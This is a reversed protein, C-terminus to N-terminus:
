KIMCNSFIQDDSSSYQDVFLLVVVMLFLKFVSRSVIIVIYWCLKSQYWDVVGICHNTQLWFISDLPCFELGPALRTTIRVFHIESFDFPLIIQEKNVKFFNLINKLSAVIPIGAFLKSNELYKHFM